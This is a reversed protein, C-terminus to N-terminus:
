AQSSVRKRYESPTCNMYHKFINIFYSFNDIGVEMAANIIKIDSDEILRAAKNIKFANIYDIPTKNVMQKFFRCFHGESMNVEDALESLSIKRNYNAQIYSLAKKLREIRYQHASFKRDETRPKSNDLILALIECLKSKVMLEYTNRKSMFIGILDNLIGLADREWQSKGSILHPHDLLGRLLPEVYKCRISDYAASMLMVPSFVVAHFAWPTAGVPSGAHIEGGNIFVAQGKEMVYNTAEIQIVASGETLVLFEMEDHWHCELGSKPNTYRMEYLQIPFMVDGHVRHEKLLNKDM